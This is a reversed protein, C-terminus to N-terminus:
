LTKRHFEQQASVLDAAAKWDPKPSSGRGSDDDEDYYDAQRHEVVIDRNRPRRSALKDLTQIL